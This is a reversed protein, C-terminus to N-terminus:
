QIKLVVPHMVVAFLLTALPDGQHFGTDSLIHLEGFLLHSPTGYCTTVWPLIEPFHEAVEQLAVGRDAQNFANILDVQLIYKNGAKDLAQRAAHVIAECGGRVGVGLQHPSLLTAAKEAVANAACKAALRRLLNGVAIPRIGDDKKKAAHLRAGCLYPAVVEPVKGAMM